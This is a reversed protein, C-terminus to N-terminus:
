YQRISYGAEQLLKRALGPRYPYPKLGSYFGFGSPLFCTSLRQGYDLYVKDIISSWDIGFNFARRIRIDNFPPQKNNLEIQYSRSGEAIIVKVTPNARLENVMTAPVAQILDVEGSVLAAVRKNVDPIPRFVARKITAPSVPPIEQAGGYYDPFSEMVIQGELNGSKFKFPGSGIPNRGFETWGVKEIYKKPIIQFHVLAQLFPPFPKKLVFRVHLNDIKEVKVLPGLLGRRPSSTAGVGEPMLIRQFTFVVDEATVPNGNHFVPGQRLKFVYDTEGEQQWSEALEAVVFGDVSRTVLADFMNRLVTETERGRYAAPDLSQYADTDMGVTITDGKELKVDHLNIRNDISPIYNQLRTSAAEINSLLFGFGWPVEEYIIKQIKHYARKRTRTGNSFAATSLLGDIVPNSYFSFNGRGDTSLKPHALDYPDFYSSGWDTLYASRTGKKIEALLATKDWVQVKINMGISNLQAAIANAEAQRFSPTDLTFSLEKARLNFTGLFIVCFIIFYLYGAIKIIGNSAVTGPSKKRRTTNLTRLFTVHKTCKVTEPAENKM